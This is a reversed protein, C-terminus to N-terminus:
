KLNEKLYEKIKSMEFNIVVIEQQPNILVFHDDAIKYQEFIAKDESNLTPYFLNKEKIFNQLAIDNTDTNIGVIELGKKNYKKYIKEIEPTLEISYNRKMDWFGLLLWKDKYDELKITKNEGVVPLEFTPAPNNLLKERNAKWQQNSSLVHTYGQTYNTYDYLVDSNYQPNNFDSNKLINNYEAIASDRLINENEVYDYFSMLVTDKLSFYHQFNSYGTRLKLRLEKRQKSSLKETDLLNQISDSYAKSPRFFFSEKLFSFVISSNIQVTHKYFDYMFFTYRNELFYGIMEPFNYLSVYFSHYFSDIEFTKTKHNIATLSKLDYIYQMSDKMSLVNYKADVIRRKKQYDIEKSFYCLYSKQVFDVSDKKRYSYDVDIKGNLLSQNKQKVVDWWQKYEDSQAHCTFFVSVFMVISLCFVKKM